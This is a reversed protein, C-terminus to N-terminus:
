RVLGKRIGRGTSLLQLIMHRTCGCKRRVRMALGLNFSFGM